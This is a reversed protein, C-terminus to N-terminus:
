LKKKPIGESIKTEYDASTFAQAPSPPRPWDLPSGNVVRFGRSKSTPLWSMKILVQLHVVSRTTIQPPTETMAPLQFNGKKRQSRKQARVWYSVGELELTDGPKLPAIQIAQAPYISTDDLPSWQHLPKKSIKGREGKCLIRIFEVTCGHSLPGDLIVIIPQFSVSRKDYGLPAPLNEAEEINPMTAFYRVPNRRYSPGVMLM